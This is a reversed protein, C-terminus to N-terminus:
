KRANEYAGDSQLLIEGKFGGKLEEIKKAELNTMAQVRTTIHGFHAWRKVYTSSGPKGTATRKDSGPHQVSAYKRSHQGALRGHQGCWVFSCKGGNAVTPRCETNHPKWPM